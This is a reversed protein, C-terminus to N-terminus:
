FEAKATTGPNSRLSLCCVQWVGIGPPTLCSTTVVYQPLGYVKLVMKCNTCKPGGTCLVNQILFVLELFTLDFYDLARSVIKGNGERSRGTGLYGFWIM